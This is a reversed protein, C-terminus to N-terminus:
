YSNLLKSAEGNGRDVAFQKLDDVIEAIMPKASLFAKLLINLEGEIMLRAVTNLADLHYGKGLTPYDLDLFSTLPGDGYCYLSSENVQIRKTRSKDWIVTIFDDDDLKETKEPLENIEHIAAVMKGEIKKDLGYPYALRSSAILIRECFANYISTGTICRIDAFVDEDYGNCTMFARFDYRIDSKDLFANIKYLQAFAKDTNKYEEASFSQNTFVHRIHALHILEKRDPQYVKEITGWEGRNKSGSGIVVRDGISIKFNTCYKYSNGKDLKVTAAMAPSSPIASYIFGDSKLVKLNEM